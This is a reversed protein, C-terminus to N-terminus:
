RYRNVPLKRSGKKRWIRLSTNKIHELDIKARLEVPLAALYEPFFKSEVWEQAGLELGYRHFRVLDKIIGKIKPRSYLKAQDLDIFFFKRAGYSEQLLINSWKLDGHVAGAMHWDAVTKALQQTFQASENFQGRVYISGLDDSNEIVASLFFAYAQTFSAEICRIPQPVPLGRARLDQSTWWLRSARSGVLAKQIRDLRGRPNFRKVAIRTHYGLPNGDLIAVTTAEDDKVLADPAAASILANLLQVSSDMYKGGM